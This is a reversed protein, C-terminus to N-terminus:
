LNYKNKFEEVRKDREEVNTVNNIRDLYINVFERLAGPDNNFVRKFKKVNLNIEANMQRFAEIIDQAAQRPNGSAKFAEMFSIIQDSDLMHQEKFEGLTRNSFLTLLARYEQRSMGKGEDFYRSNMTQWARNFMERRQTTNFVKKQTRVYTSYSELEQLDALSMHSLRGTAFKKASKTNTLMRMMELTTDVTDYHPAYSGRAIERNIIGLQRNLERVNSRIKRALRRKEKQTATLKKKMTM